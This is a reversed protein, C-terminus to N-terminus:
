QSRSSRLWPHRCLRCRTDRGSSRASISHCRRGMSQDTEGTTFGREEHVVTLERVRVCSAACVKISFDDVSSGGARQGLRQWAGQDDGGELVSIRQRLQAVQREQEELQQRQSEVKEHAIRKFFVSLFVFCFLSFFFLTSVFNALAYRYQEGSVYDNPPSAHGMTPAPTQLQQQIYHQQQGYPNPNFAMTAHKPDTM